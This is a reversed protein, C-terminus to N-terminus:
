WTTPRSRSWDCYPHLALSARRQHRLEPERDDRRRARRDWRRRAALFFADQQSKNFRHVEDVFVTTKQNTFAARDRAAAVIDTIDAVGGLVASLTAFHSRTAEAIIRAVTTKGSGPPGWLITSRVRDMEIAAECAAFESGLLHRQGVLDALVRPRMRSALPARPDEGREAAAAGFLTERPTSSLRRSRTAM